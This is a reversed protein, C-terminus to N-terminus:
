NRLDIMLQQNIANLKDPRNLSLTAAGEQGSRIVLIIKERNM